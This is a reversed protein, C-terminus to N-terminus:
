SCEGALVKLAFHQDSEDRVFLVGTDSCLIEYLPVFRISTDQGLRALAPQNKCVFAKHPGLDHCLPARSMAAAPIQPNAGDPLHRLYNRCKFLEVLLLQSLSSM